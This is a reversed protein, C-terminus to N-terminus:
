VKLPNVNQSFINLNFSLFTKILRLLFDSERHYTENWDCCTLGMQAADSWPRETGQEGHELEEGRSMGRWWRILFPANETEERYRNEARNNTPPFCSSTALPQTTCHSLAPNHSKPQQPWKLPTVGSGIWVFTRTKGRARAWYWPCWNYHRVESQLNCAKNVFLLFWKVLFSVFYVLFYRMAVCPSFHNVPKSAPLHHSTVVGPAEPWTVMHTNNTDGPAPVPVHCIVMM